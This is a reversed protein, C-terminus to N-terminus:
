IREPPRDTKGWAHFMKWAWNSYEEKQEIEWALKGQLREIERDKLEDIKASTIRARAQGLTSKLEPGSDYSDGCYSNETYGELVQDMVHTIIEKECSLSEIFELKSQPELSDILDSIHFEVKGEKNIKANM